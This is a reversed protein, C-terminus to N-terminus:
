ERLIKLAAPRAPSTIPGLAEAILERDRAGRVCNRLRTLDEDDLSVSCQPRRSAPV